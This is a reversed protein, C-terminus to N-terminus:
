KSRQARQVDIYRGIRTQIEVEVVTRTGRKSNQLYMKVAQNTLHTKPMNYEAEAVQDHGADGSKINKNYALDRDKSDKMFIVMM